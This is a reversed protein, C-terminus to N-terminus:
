LLDMTSTTSAHLCPYLSLVLDIERRPDFLLAYRGISFRSFRPKCGARGGLDDRPFPIVDISIPEV